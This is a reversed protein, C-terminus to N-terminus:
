KIMGELGCTPCKIKLPREASYIPIVGKCQACRAKGIVKREEAPPAAPAAAQGGAAPAKAPAAAAAGALTPPIAKKGYLAAYIEKASRRQSPTASPLPPPQTERAGASRDQMGDRAHVSRVLDELARTPEPAMEGPGEEIGQQETSPTEVPPEPREETVPTWQGTDPSWESVLRPEPGAAETGDARIFVDGERPRYYPPAQPRGAERPAAAGDDGPGRTAAALAAILSEPTEQGMQVTESPQEGESPEGQQAPREVWGDSETGQATEALAQEAEVETVTPGAQEKVAKQGKQAKRGQPPREEQEPPSGGTGASAGEDKGPPAPMSRLHAMLARRTSLSVGLVVLVLIIAVVALILMWISDGGAGSGLGPTRWISKTVTQGNGAPDVVTVVIVNSGEQLQVGYKFSGDTGVQVQNGNVFVRSGPEVTGSITTSRDSTEPGSSSDLRFPAVSTDLRIIASAIDSSQGARDRFRAYVTKEGDGESLVWGRAQAYPEWAIGSLGRDAGIQMESVDTDNTYLALMVARRATYAAGGEIV